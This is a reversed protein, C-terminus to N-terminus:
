CVHLDYIVEEFQTWMWFHIYMFIDREIKGTCNGQKRKTRRKRVNLAHKDCKIIDQNLDCVTSLKAYETSIWSMMCKM